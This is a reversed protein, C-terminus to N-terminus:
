KSEGGNKLVMSKGVGLIYGRVFREGGGRYAGWEIEELKRRSNVKAWMLQGRSSVGQYRGKVVAENYYDAIGPQEEFFTYHRLGMRKKLRAFFQEAKVILGRAQDYRRRYELYRKREVWGEKRWRMGYPEHVRADHGFVMIELLHDVKWVRYEVGGGQRLTLAAVENPNRECYLQVPEFRSVRIGQGGQVRIIKMGVVRRIKVLCGILVEVGTETDVEFHTGKCFVHKDEVGEEFKKRYGELLDMDAAGVSDSDLDIKMYFTEGQYIRWPLKEGAVSMEGLAVGVHDIPVKKRGCGMVVVCVALVMMELLMGNILRKVM